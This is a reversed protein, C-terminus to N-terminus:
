PIPEDNLFARITALSLEPQASTVAHGAGPIPVFTANPLTEKYRMTADLPIYDCEGRLILVPTLNSKLTPRPDPATKLSQLTLLNAYYNSGGTRTAGSPKFGKCNTQYDVNPSTTFTDYIASMEAQSAFQEAVDPQMRALAGAVIFRLSPLIVSDDESSATTTYDYKVESRDGLVGPSILVARAVHDPYAAMYHAALVGGWSTGILILKDAGLTQRIAELDAVNRALTYDAISEARNSLGVGVQDYLYVDYGDETLHRYYNLSSARMPIGPGGHLYVIPYERPTGSAPLHTYALRSETELTWYQTDARPQLVEPTIETPRFVYMWALFATLAVVVGAFTWAVQAPHAAKQWSALGWASAWATLGLVASATVILAWLNHFVRASFFFALTAFVVSFLTAFVFGIGGLIGLIMKRKPNAPRTSTPIPQTTVNLTSM